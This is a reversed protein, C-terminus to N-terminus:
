NSNKTWTLTTSDRTITPNENAPKPNYYFEGDNNFGKSILQVKGGSYVQIISYGFFAPDNSGPVGGNNSGGNGAIIQYTSDGGPQSREYFHKHASLMALVQFQRLKPWLKDSQEFGSHGEAISNGVYAPKHGLVFIHKITSDAHFEQVKSEIWSLPIIGERGLTDEATPPNYTDTNMLIFGVNKRVFSFTLRNDLSDYNPAVERDTPIFRGVHKLWVDVSGKLPREIYSTQKEGAEPDTKIVEYSRLMEHNGPIAVLEIGSQSIPGTKSTDDFLKVWAILQSDLQPDKEEGLVLDGLFFFLDPKRPLDAIERLVRELVVLNATSKNTAESNYQDDFDVRNCGVFAFSLIISDKKPDNENESCTTCTDPGCGLLIIPILFLWYFLNNKKM